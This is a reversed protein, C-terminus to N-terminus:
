VGGTSTHEKIIEELQAFAKLSVKCISDIINQVPAIQDLTSPLGLLRRQVERFVREKPNSPNSRHVGGEINATNKIIESVNYSFGKYYLVGIKLFKERNILLSKLEGNRVGIMYWYIRFNPLLPKLTAKDSNVEFQIKLKHPKNVIDLLSISGDFFLQRLLATARILDYNTGKKLRERIDDLTALFLEEDTM